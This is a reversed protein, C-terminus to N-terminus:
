ATHSAGNGWLRVTLPSTPVIGQGVDLQRQGEPNMWQEAEETAQATCATTPSCLMQNIRAKEMVDTALIKTEMGSEVGNSRLM